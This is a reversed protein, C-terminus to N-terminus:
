KRQFINVYFLFISNQCMYIAKDACPLILCIPMCKGLYQNTRDQSRTEGYYNFIQSLVQGYELRKM